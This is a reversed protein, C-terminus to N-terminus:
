YGHGHGAPPVMAAAFLRDPAAKCFDAIWDNYARRWPTPWMRTRLWTFVRPSGPPISSHRDIGMADMDALRAQPDSAGATEPHRVNPDLGGVDEWTMGPKWIAYRPINPNSSDRFVKGNVKLYANTRGHERWLASKGLVRYEPDLYQEWM